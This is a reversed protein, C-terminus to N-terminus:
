SDEADAPKAKENEKEKGQEKEPRRRRPDSREKLADLLPRAFFPRPVLRYRGARAGADLEQARGADAVLLRLAEPQRREVEQLLEAGSSDPLREDDVVVAAYRCRDM